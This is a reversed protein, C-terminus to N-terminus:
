EKDVIIELSSELSKHATREKLVQKKAQYRITERAVTMYRNTAIDWVDGLVPIFELLEGVGLGAVGRLRNNYMSYGIFMVKGILMEWVGEGLPAPHFDVLSTVRDFTDSVKAFSLLKKNQDYSREIYPILDKDTVGLSKLTKDEALVAAEDEARYDYMLPILYEAAKAGFKKKDSM